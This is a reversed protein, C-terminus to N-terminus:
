QSCFVAASESVGYERWANRKGDAKKHTGEIQRCALLVRVNIRFTERVFLNRLEALNIRVAEDYNRRCGCRLQSVLGKGFQSAHVVDLINQFAMELADAGLNM